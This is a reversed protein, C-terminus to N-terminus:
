PQYHFNVDNELVAEGRDAKRNKWLMWFSLLPAGIVVLANMGISLYIGTPYGQGAENEKFAVAVIIGALAGGAVVLASAFGRKSQSRISTQCWSIIMAINANCGGCCLFVGTYRAAIMHQPLKSFMSIGAVVCAAHFAVVPGRIMRTPGALHDSVYAGIMAPFFVWVYPPAFLLQAQINTFGMSQLIGPLFFALAYVGVAASCFFYSFLWLKPTLLYQVFKAWTMPDAESDARDREIRLLVIEREEETLFKARDPFDVILLYGLLGIVITVVGEIIFIWRWGNRGAIGDMHSLGYALASSLGAIMISTIYFWANRSAMQKRPYWCAILYTAGPFLVAEFAGLLARLGALVSWTPALGMCVMVVGWMVVATGLWIKAGFKRLGIQSPVELILYPIFFSLTIISYRNNPKGDVSTLGLEANMKKNNASRALGLNGRDIQSITYMAGLIPLLRWDIRRTIRKITKPDFGEDVDAWQRHLDDHLVQDTDRRSISRQFDEVVSSRRRGLEVHAMDVKGDFGKESDQDFHHVM